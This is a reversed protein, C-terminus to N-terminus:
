YASLKEKINEYDEPLMSYLATDVNEGNYRFCDNRIIGELKAGYYEVSARSAQNKNNIHFEVRAQPILLKTMCLVKSLHMQDM